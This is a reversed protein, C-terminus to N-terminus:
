ADELYKKTEKFQNKSENLKSKLNKILESAEKAKTIGEEVDLSDQNEFWDAIDELKEFQEKMNNEQKKPM